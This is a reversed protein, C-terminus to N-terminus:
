AHFLLFLLLHGQRQEHTQKYRQLFDAAAELLALERGTGADFVATAGLGRLCAALRNATQQPTLQYAAALSAISQRSLSVVVTLGEEQLKSKLEGTCCNRKIPLVGQIPLLLTVPVHHLM